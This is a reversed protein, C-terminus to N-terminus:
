RLEEMFQEVWLAWSGGKELSLPCYKEMIQEPTTLGQDVYKEKIGAAVKAIAEEYSNFRLTGQSHIGWGWCNYSDAPINKCLTSEQRAIAVLLRYDLSNKDSIQVLYEAFPTLPSQYEQLYNKIILPRADATQIASKVEGLAQPLASYMGYPSKKALTGLVQAEQKVLSNLDKTHRIKELSFFSFYLTGMTVPFWLFLLLLRKM